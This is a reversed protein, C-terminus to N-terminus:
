VSILRRGEGWQKRQGRTIVMVSEFGILDDTKPEVKAHSPIYKDKQAQSIEDLM